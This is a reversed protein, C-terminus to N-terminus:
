RRRCNIERPIKFGSIFAGNALMRENIIEATHRQPRPYCDRMARMKACSCVIMGFCIKRQQTRWNHDTRVSPNTGIREHPRAYCDTFPCNNTCSRDRHLIYAGPSNHDSVWRAFAFSAFDRLRNAASIDISKIQIAAEPKKAPPYFMTTVTRTPIQAQEPMPQTPIFLDFDVIIDRGSVILDM